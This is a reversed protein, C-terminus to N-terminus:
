VKLTLAHKCCIEQEEGANGLAFFIEHPLLCPVAVEEIETSDVVQNAAFPVTEIFISLQFLTCLGSENRKANHLFM